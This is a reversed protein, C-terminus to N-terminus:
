GSQPFQNDCHFCIVDSLIIKFVISPDGTWVWRQSDLQQTKPCRVEILNCLSPPWLAWHNRYVAAKSRDIHRSYSCYLQGDDSLSHTHIPPHRFTFCKRTRPSSPASYLYFLEGFIYLAFSRKAITIITLLWYSLQLVRWSFKQLLIKIFNPCNVFLDHAINYSLHWLFFYCLYFSYFFVHLSKKKGRSVCM